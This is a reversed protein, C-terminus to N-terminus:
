QHDKRYEQYHWYHYEKRNTIDVIHWAHFTKGSVYAYAEELSDFDKHFDNMGGRPYYNDYAFLWFKKM